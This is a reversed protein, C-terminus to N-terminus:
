EMVKVIAECFILLECVCVLSNKVVQLNKSLIIVSYKQLLYNNRWGVVYWIERLILGVLILCPSSCFVCFFFFFFFFFFFGQM